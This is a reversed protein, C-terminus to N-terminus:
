FLAKLGFQIVRPWAFELTTRGFATSTPTTNVSGPTFQPHNFANIAEARFQVTVKERISTNKIVSLDWNNPGDSRVGSFRSPMFRLNAVRQNATVKDFGADTNFWRDPSRQNRPLPINKLDGLFIADGFGLAACQHVQM